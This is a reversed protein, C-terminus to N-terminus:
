EIKKGLVSINIPKLEKMMRSANTYRKYDIGLKKSNSSFHLDFSVDPGDSINLSISRVYAVGFDKIEFADTKHLTLDSVKPVDKLAVHRLSTLEARIKKQNSDPSFLSISYNGGNAVSGYIKGTRADKKSSLIRGKKREQIRVRRIPVGSKMTLGSLIKQSLLSQGLEKDSGDYGHNKLRELILVRIADDKINSIQGLTLDELKVRHSVLVYGKKESERMLSSTTAEHLAGSKKKSQMRSVIMSELIRKFDTQFNPYPQTIELRDAKRNLSRSLAHFIKPTSLGVVIADVAHHRHDDRNKEIGWLKRLLATHSGRLSAIRRKRESVPFTLGVFERVYKSAYRTDNLQQSIFSEVDAKANNYFRWKKAWPFTMKCVREIMQSYLEDTKWEGPTRDSKDKNEEAFTLVKNMRSDDLSRSFPLIHDVQLVNEAYIEARGFSKGSYPCQFGQSEALEFKLVLNYTPDFGDEKIKEKIAERNKEIKRQQFSIEDKKWKPLKIEKALEIVITEPKGYVKILANYVRRFQHVTRNVTPNTIKDLPLPLLDYVKSDIDAPYVTQKAEHESKGERLLPLLKSMALSSYAFTGGEGSPMKEYIEQFKERSASFPLNLSQFRFEFDEISNSAHYNKCIRQIDEKHQSSNKIGLINIVTSYFPDGNIDKQREAEYNLQYQDSVKILKKIKPFTIKANELLAQALEERQNPALNQSNNNTPDIIEMNNVIARIRFEIGIPDHRYARVEGKELPCKGITKLRREIQLEFPLQFFIIKKLDEIQSENLLQTGLKKQTEVILHFEDEYMKRLTSLGRIRKRDQVEGNLTNLYLHNLHEGLTRHGLENMSQVLLNASASMKILETNFADTKKNSRFGRRKAINFFVEALELPSLLRELAEKRLRYPNESFGYPPNISQELWGYEKFLRILLTRRTKRRRIQRRLSRARRREAANSELTKSNRPEDFVRVGADLLQIVAHGEAEFVAWGVSASGLDFSFRKGM